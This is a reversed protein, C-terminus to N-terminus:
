RSGRRGVGDCHEIREVYDLEARLDDVFYAAADLLVLETSAAV